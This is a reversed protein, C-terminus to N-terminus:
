VKSVCSILSAESGLPSFAVTPLIAKACAMSIPWHVLALTITIALSPSPSTDDALQNFRFYPFLSCKLPSRVSLYLRMFNIIYFMIMNICSLRPQSPLPYHLCKSFCPIASRIINFCLLGYLIFCLLNFSFVYPNIAAAPWKRSM